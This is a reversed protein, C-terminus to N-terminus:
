RERKCDLLKWLQWDWSEAEEGHGRRLAARGCYWCTRSPGLACWSRPPEHPVAVQNVRAAISHASQSRGLISIIPCNFHDPLARQGCPLVRKQLRRRRVPGRSLWWSPRQLSVRANRHQPGGGNQEEKSANLNKMVMKADGHGLSAVLHALGPHESRPSSSTSM